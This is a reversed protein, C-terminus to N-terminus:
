RKSCKECRKCAADATAWHNKIGHRRKENIARGLRDVFIDLEIADRLEYINPMLKKMCEICLVDPLGPSRVGTFLSIIEHYIRYHEDSRGIALGTAEDNMREVAGCIDCKHLYGKLEDISGDENLYPM